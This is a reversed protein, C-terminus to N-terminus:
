DQSRNGNKSERRLFTLNEELGETQSEVNALVFGHTELYSAVEAKSPVGVYLPHPTLWVELTIKAIDRLREGASKVVALDTGQADIKLFDVKEIGVFNMFTDLRITPVVVVSEVKLVKAGEWSDIGEKSLPLLSSAADFANINFEAAGDKETVAMPVVVYNPARGMLTAAASLNPEFAYIRLGPNHRAYGVTHEGHHAGVDIWTGGRGNRRLIEDGAKRLARGTWSTLSFDM